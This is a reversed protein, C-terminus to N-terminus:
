HLHGGTKSRSHSGLLKYLDFELRVDTINYDRAIKVISIDSYSPLMDAARGLVRSELVVQMFHICQCGASSHDTTSVGFNRKLHNEFEQESALYKLNVMLM